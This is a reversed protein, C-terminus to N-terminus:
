KDIRWLNFFIGVSAVFAMVYFVDVAIGFFDYFMFAATLCVGLGVIFFPIFIDLRKKEIMNLAATTAIILSVGLAIAIQYVSFGMQFMNVM